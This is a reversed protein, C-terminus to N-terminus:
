GATNYYFCIAAASYIQINKLWAYIKENNEKVWVSWTFGSKCRVADLVRPLLVDCRYFWEYKLIQYSEGELM